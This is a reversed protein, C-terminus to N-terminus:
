TGIDGLSAAASSASSTVDIASSVSGNGGGGAAVGIAIVGLLLALGACFLAVNSRRKVQQMQILTEIAKGNDAHDHVVALEPPVNDDTSSSSGHNLAVASHPSPFFSPPPLLMCLIGCYALRLMAIETIKKSAFTPAQPPRFM